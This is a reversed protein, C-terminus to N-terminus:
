FQANYFQLMKSIEDYGTRKLGASINSQKRNLVKAIEVQNYNSHELTTKFLLAAKPTWYDMTLLALDLMINIPNNFTADETKIALTSKKLGEFCDGSNVFASGNSETISEADYTKEGVGIALRVDISKFQKITAKLLLATKLATKPLIELQFSDGRYIEWQKPSAGYKNLESKLATLWLNPDGSRSSIIDGTIIGTM